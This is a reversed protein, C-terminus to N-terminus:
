LSEQSFDLGDDVEPDRNQTVLRGRSLFRRAVMMDPTM